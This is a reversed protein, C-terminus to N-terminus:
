YPISGLVQKSSYLMSGVLIHVSCDAPDLPNATKKGTISIKEVVALVGYFSSRQGDETLEVCWPDATM